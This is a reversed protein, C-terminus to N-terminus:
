ESQTARHRRPRASRVPLHPKCHRTTPNLYDRIKVLIGGTSFDRMEGYNGGSQRKQQARRLSITIPTRRSLYSPFERQVEFRFVLVAWRPEWTAPFDRACNRRCQVT